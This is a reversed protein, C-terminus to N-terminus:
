RVGGNKGETIKSKFLFHLSFLKQKIVTLKVSDAEIKRNVHKQKHIKFKMLNLNVTFLM